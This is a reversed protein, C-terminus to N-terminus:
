IGGVEWKYGQPLPPSLIGTLTNCLHTPNEGSDFVWAQWIQPVGGGCHNLPFPTATPEIPLPPLATQEASIIEVGPAFITAPDLPWPVAEQAHVMAAALVIVLLTALAKM